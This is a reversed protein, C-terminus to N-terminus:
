FHFPNRSGEVARWISAYNRWCRKRGASELSYHYYNASLRPSVNAQCYNWMEELTGVRGELHGLLLIGCVSTPLPVLRNIWVSAQLCWHVLSPIPKSLCGMSPLQWIDLVCFPTLLLSLYNKTELKAAQLGYLNLYHSSTEVAMFIFILM